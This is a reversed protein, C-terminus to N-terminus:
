GGDTTLPREASSVKHDAVSSPRIGASTFGEVTISRDVFEFCTSRAHLEFEIIAIQSVLDRKGIQV